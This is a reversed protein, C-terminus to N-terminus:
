ASKGFRFSHVLEQNLLGGRIFNCRVNQNKLLESLRIPTEVACPCVDRNTKQVSKTGNSEIVTPEDRFQRSALKYPASIPM